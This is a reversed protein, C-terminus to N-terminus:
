PVVTVACSASAAVKQSTSGLLLGTVRGRGRKGLIILDAKHQRASDLISEAVDGFPSELQIDSAGLAEARQRAAALEQQAFTTLVEGSTVHERISYENLEDASFSDRNIVHIIKLQGDLAKTLKAALEVARNASESGDAAVLIRVIGSERKM